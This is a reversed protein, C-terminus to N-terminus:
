HRYAIMWFGISFATVGMQWNMEHWLFGSGITTYLVSFVFPRM